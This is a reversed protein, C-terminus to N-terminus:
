PARDWLPILTEKRVWGTQGNPFSLQRWGLFSKEIRGLSGAALPAIQQDGNLNTPISRLEGAQWTLAADADAATSWVQLGFIASAMLLVSVFGGMWSLSRWASIRAGYAHLLIISLSIVAIVVGGLFLLQWEGPSAFRAIKEPWNPTLFRSFVPPTYGGRELTYNLHWRTSPHRPNQAFAVSAHAAAENWSNQQALALALNHHAIWDSPNTAVAERWATEAAAFDGEQYASSGQASSDAPLALLLTAEILPFLNRPALVSFIPFRPARKNTLASQARQGWDSPLEANQAYLFRDAERWLQQWTDDGFMRPSPAAHHSQWLVATDRQWATLPALQDSGASQEIQKLTVTLRRRALRAPKGPDLRRARALSLILWLLPFLAFLVGATVWINQRNLPAWSAGNGPLIELPITSPSEPAPTANIAPSSDQFLPASTPDGSTRPSPPAAAAAVQLTTAPATLTKYEGAAPDFYTWAVPGFTFEGPQTPILVVDEAISGEFLKGELMERRADPQVVRFSNSVQRSPLGPIDPWNGEGELLLTWTVPEGVAASEPVVKSTLQFSGVAGNFTAPIPAPLPKVTIQPSDSTISFQEARLSLMFGSSPISINVLQQASPIVYSGPSNIYGRSAYVLINRADGGVGRTLRSPEQWEEVVLPSSDWEPEGGISARFRASVDLTYSVPIVEGAWIEGDDLVLSSQAVDSIPVNTDGVTAERVPFRGGVVNLSGKDTQITFNPIEIPGDSSPLAPYAWYTIVQSSARGNIISQSTQSGQQPAGLSLDAIPPLEIDGEPLCNEFILVLNANQGKPFYGEALQWRVNQAHVASAVLALLLFFFSFNRTPM